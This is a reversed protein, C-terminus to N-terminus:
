KSVRAECLDLRDSTDLGDGYDAVIELRKVGGMDVELESAPESGRVEGQWLTKGDGVISLRVSGLPRVSDDIGVTAKFVRFKGPLRYAVSTRSALALGKRFTTGDLAM